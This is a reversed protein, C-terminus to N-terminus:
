RVPALPCNLSPTMNSSERVQKNFDYTDQEVFECFSQPRVKYPMLQYQGGRKVYLNFEIWFDEELTKTIKLFGFVRRTGNAKRITVKSADVYESQQGQEVRM